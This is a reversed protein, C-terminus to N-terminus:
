LRCIPYGITMRKELFEARKQGNEIHWVYGSYVPNILHFDSIGGPQVRRPKEPIKLQTM